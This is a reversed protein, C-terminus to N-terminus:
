VSSYKTGIVTGWFFNWDHEPLSCHVSKQPKQLRLELTATQEPRLYFQLTYRNWILHIKLEAIRREPLEQCIKMEM